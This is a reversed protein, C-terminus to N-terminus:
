STQMSLWKSYSNRGYGHRKDKAYNYFARIFTRRRAGSKRKWGPVIARAGFDISGILHHRDIIEILPVNRANHMIDLMILFTSSRGRGARCHFHLWANKPLGEVLSLFEDVQKPTPRRHDPIFFRRYALGMREVFQKPNEVRSIAVSRTTVRHIHGTKKEEITNVQVYSKGKLTDLLEQEVKKAEADSKGLNEQNRYGYWRIPDGNLFGHSEQCLDIIYVKGVMKPLINALTAESIQGSASAQLKDLGERTPPSVLKKKFPDKTTRFNKPLSVEGQPDSVLIPHVIGHASYPLVLLLGVVLLSFCKM